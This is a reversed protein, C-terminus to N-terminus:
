NQPISSRLAIEEMGAPVRNMHNPISLRGSDFIANRWFLGQTVGCPKSMVKTEPSKNGRFSDSNQGLGAALLSCVLGYVTQAAAISKMSNAPTPQNSECALVCEYDTQGLNLDQHAWWSDDLSDYIQPFYGKTSNGWFLALARLSDTKHRHHDHYKWNRPKLNARQFHPYTTKSPFPRRIRKPESRRKGSTMKRYSITAALSPGPKIAAPPCRLVNPYERGSWIESQIAGCIM